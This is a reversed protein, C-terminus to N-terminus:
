GEHRLEAWLAAWPKSPGECLWLPEGNVENDIHDIAHVRAVLRCGMFWTDDVDLDDYGVVLVPGQQGPPEGFDAYSNHGSYARGLGRTAGYRDIAGAEGYDATFIVTAARQADPVTQHVAAVQDVFSPWGITEMADENLAGIPGDVLRQPLVPLTIVAGVVVNVGIAVSLVARHWTRRAMWEDGIIAGVAIPVAFLGAAYYGKGGTVLLALLLVGYAVVFLRVRRWRPNRALSWLAAVLLPAMPPGLILLQFPVLTARNEAAQDRALARAFSIQPWQHDIQWWLQPSWLVVALAAGALTWRSVFRRWAGTALVGVALSVVVLVLTYKNELGIGITAGIGLWWRQEGTRDIRVLLLAVVSAALVDFTPTTLLHGIAMVFSASATLVAALVQARASGGLERAVFAVVVVLAGVEAAPLVRMGLLSDGFVRRSLWGIAPTLAPNDVYGWAPHRVSEIFYLEDRHFGYRAAVLLLVAVVSVAPVVAARAFPPVATSPSDPAIVTLRAGASSVEDSEARHERFAHVRRHTRREAAEPERVACAPRIADVVDDRAAVAARRV